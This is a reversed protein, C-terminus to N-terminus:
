PADVTVPFGLTVTTGQDPISQIDLSGQSHQLILKVIALGLGSGQQEYHHREFQQFAGLQDLNEAPIGRGQDSVSLTISNGTLRCQLTIPSGAASFKCANDTLQRVVHSFYPICAHIPYEPLAIEMDEIRKWKKAVDSGIHRTITCLNDRIEGSGSRNGTFRLFQLENYLLYKHITEMLREAASQIACAMPVIEQHSLNSPEEEIILEAYGLISNLPTILEHPIRSALESCLAESRQQEQELQLRKKRLRVEIAQLLEEIPAPKQIYDDAGMVMGRRVDEKDVKATLFLFPISATRPHSKLAEFVQYGDMKPMMIDCLVLDHHSELAKRVGEEGDQADDVDYNELTLLEVMNHRLVPDDEILLIRRM